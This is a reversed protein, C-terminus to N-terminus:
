RFKEYNNNNIVKKLKERAYFIRSKVTGQPMQLIDSIQKVSQEELYFLTLITKQVSPLTELLKQLNFFEEPEEENEDNAHELVERQRKLSNLYDMIKNYTIRFAWTKFKSPEKLSSVGKYIATWSDQVIDKSSEFDNVYRFVFALLKKNWRKVLLEFATADGEKIKLILLEDFVSEKRM